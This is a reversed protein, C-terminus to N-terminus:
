CRSRWCCPLVVLGVLAGVVDIARKVCLGPGTALWAWATSWPLTLPLPLVGRAIAARDFRTWGALSTSPSILRGM